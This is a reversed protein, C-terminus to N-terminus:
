ILQIMSCFRGENESYFEICDCITWSQGDDQIQIVEGTKTNLRLKNHYNQTSYMKYTQGFVISTCLVFIITLFIRM